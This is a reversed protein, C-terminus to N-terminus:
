SSPLIINKGVLEGLNFAKPIERVSLPIKKLSDIIVNEDNTLIINSARGILEIYLKHTTNRFYDDRNAIHFCAIRDNNQQSVSVIKGNELHKRFLMLLNSTIHNIIPANISRETVQM